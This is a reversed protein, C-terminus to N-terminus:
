HKLDFINIEVEFFKNFVYYIIPISIAISGLSTGIWYNVFYSMKGLIKSIM